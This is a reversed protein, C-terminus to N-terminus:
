FNSQPQATLSVTFVLIVPLLARLPRLPPLCLSASMFYRAAVASEENFAEVLGHAREKQNENPDALVWARYNKPDEDGNDLLFKAGNALM